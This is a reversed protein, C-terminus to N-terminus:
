SFLGTALQSTGIGQLTVAHAASLHLVANGSADATAGAIVTNLAASGPAEGAVQLHDTGIRFGAVIDNAIDAPTLDFTTAGAAYASPCGSQMFNNGAGAYMTTAGTGAFLYDAAAAGILTTVGSGGFLLNMGSGGQITVNGAGQEFILQDANGGPATVTTATADNRIFIQNLDLLNGDSLRPAIAFNLAYQSSQFYAANGYGQQNASLWGFAQIAQTSGTYTIETALAARAIPVYSGTTSSYWTSGPSMGNTNSPDATYAVTAAAVQSWSTYPTGTQANYVCLRYDAGDFPNLGNAGNLFRGATWNTAWALLQSAGAIGAGAALGLSTVLYDEMWPAVASDSTIGYGTFWGYVAGQNATQTQNLLYQINNTLMQTFYAKEASGTPNVTAAEVLERLSWAEARVEPTTGVVLGQGNGRASPWTYLEDFSAQANLQDLYTQNGTALYAYYGLDPQHAEDLKWGSQVVDYPQPYGTSQDYAQTFATTGNAGARGDFWLTPNSTVTLYSGTTPDFLHWPVSGAANAQALAFSAADANQTLLWDVDWSPMPGIDDRGGVGPMNKQIDGSGLIAYADGTTGSAGTGAAMAATNATVTSTRVSLSTDYNWVLGTAELAAVDHQVNVGPAGNSWVVQDWTQYQYQTIGTQSLVAQGNQSITVDYNLTSGTATMALDNAFQVDTCTTGDAYLSVNFVLRMSSTVPTSFRLETVQPGQLWYSVTGAQLAQQLLTAADFSFPTTSGDANNFNLDVTFDYNSDTLQSIDVAPATSPAALSLMVNGSTGAALAPQLLTLVATQVSGDAYTTKVDMQVAVAQGNITAVLGNGSPVQGQSFDQGFTFERAALATATPNQLVLGVVQGTTTPQLVTPAILTSADDNIIVGAASATTISAGASPSALTVTFSRNSQYTTNGAVNVTITQTTVGAAFSVTGSPLVGGVFDAAVAPSSGSCTVKWAASAAISTNGGRTVTFTFPTTAGTNGENKSASAAAIALTASPAPLITGVASATTISAGTSPSALAVTFSQSSQLVSNAAVNITITQTTVGAAFSVTGSPLVGGVFDAAVAPVSGSGTVTWTASAAIATNGGRTVTFTFPTSASTGDAKSASAAAIALTASQTPFITGVASATTISAGTSPSALAVTFGQSALTVSNAAVNVTITQTTVGAAFSVTGSPLVGGVFDAAVAPVSGSGTVKWTASAASATNGGRTVTFTFPTSGSTGDAKSASAAAIALTASPAPLITGSASATTISAGTSPSALAVTFGQSSKLVSNAAVNITITQTTVGAAFSVTGSPLVGGVFDAAIAPSSGSGTVTWAASAAISTNGGRTVTFTFPTSGSTGDAKSASAAAIALTAPPAAFATAGAINYTGDPFQISAVGGEIIITHGTGQTDGVLIYGNPQTQITFESETGWTINVIDQGTGVIIVFAPDAATVTWTTPSSM